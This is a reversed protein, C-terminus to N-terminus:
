HRSRTETQVDFMAPPPQNQAPQQRNGIAREKNDRRQNASNHQCPPESCVCDCKADRQDHESELKPRSLIFQGTGGRDSCGRLSFGIVGFLVDCWRLLLPRVFTRGKRSISVVVVTSSSASLRISVKGALSEGAHIGNARTPM